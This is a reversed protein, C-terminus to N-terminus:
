VIISLLTGNVMVLGLWRFGQAWPKDIVVTPISALLRMECNWVILGTDSPCLNFSHMRDGTVVNCSVYKVCFFNTGPSLWQLEKSSKVISFPYLSNQQRDVVGDDYGAGHQVVYLIETSM